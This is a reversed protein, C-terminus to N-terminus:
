GRSTSGLHTLLPADAPPTPYRDLDSASVWALEQGERGHPEGGEITAQYFLLLIRLGHEEHVAFTLPRGCRAAVGLEEELERELAADPPEGERVKGGPLEWLGAMHRGPPRRGLLIRGTSDRIVAAVVLTLPPGDSSM